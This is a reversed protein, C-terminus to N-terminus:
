RKVTIDLDGADESIELRPRRPTRGHSEFLVKDGAGTLRWGDDTPRMVLSGGACSSVEPKERMRAQLPSHNPRVEKVTARTNAGTM